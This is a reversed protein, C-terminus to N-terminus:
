LHNKLLMVSIRLAAITQTYQGVNVKSVISLLTDAHQALAMLADASDPTARLVMVTTLYNRELEALTQITGPSLSQQVMPDTLITKADLYIVNATKLVREKETCSSVCLVSLGILLLVLLKKM